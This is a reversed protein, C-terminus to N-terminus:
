QKFQKATISRFSMKFGLTKNPLPPVKITVPRNNRLVTMSTQEGSRRDREAIFSQFVAATTKDNATGKKLEALLAATYFWTGYKWVVDGAQLGIKYAPQKVDLIQEIFIVPRLLYKDTNTIQRNDTDYYLLTKGDKALTIRHFGDTGPVKKGDPDFFAESLTKGNKDKTIRKEAYGYPGNILKADTGYYATKNQGIYRIAYGYLTNFILKEDTGYNYIKTGGDPYYEIKAKALGEPGIVLHNHSDYYAEETWQNNKNYLWSQKAIGLSRDLNPRGDSRLKKVSIKRGWEDFETAILHNGNEDEAPKKNFGFCQYKTQQQNKNCIYFIEHIGAHTLAPKGYANYYIKRTMQNTHSDYEITAMHVGEPGECPHGIKDFWRCEILNGFSDYRNNIRSFGQLGNIPNGNNDFFQESICHRFLDFTREVRHVGNVKTTVPMKHADFFSEKVINDASDYEYRKCHYGDSHEAPKLNATFFREEIIRDFADNVWETRAGGEKTTVPKGSTDFTTLVCCFGQRDYEYKRISWGEQPKVIPKGNHDYVSQTDLRNAANYTSRIEQVPTLPDNSHDFVKVNIKNGHGNYKITIKHINLEEIAIDVAQNDLGFFRMETMNGYKDYSLRAVHFGSEALVPNENQDFAAVAIMNGKSDYQCKTIAYGEQTNSPKGKENLSTLQILQGKDDYILDVGYSKNDEDGGQQPRGIRDYFTVRKEFGRKDNLIDVTEALSKEGITIPYGASNVFLGKTSGNINTGSPIHLFTFCKRNFRDWATEYVINGNRDYTFDIRASKNSINDFNWLGKYSVLSIIDDSDVTTQKENADIVEVSHVPNLRGNRTLKYSWSRHAVDSRSLTGVPYIAGRRKTFNRSYSHYPLVYCYLYIFIALVATLISFILVNLLRKTKRMRLEKKHFAEQKAMEAQKNAQSAELFEMSLEFNGGYRKAWEPTPHCMKQCDLVVELYPSTLFPGNNEKNLRASRELDRYIDAAKAEEKVWTNLQKWLKILSEHSIDIIDDDHLKCPVAPVLFGFCPARFVEVIEIIAEPSVGARKAIISVKTPRRGDRHATGRECITQFLLRAITKQSDNLKEYAQDAHRSLAESLGGVNEYDSMNLVHGYDEEAIGFNFPNGPDPKKSPKTTSWMQRLLHQLVPLQNPDNGTENLLRNVLAPELDGGFVRAPGIIASERQARNLRPTLYQSQNLAEPLRRFIACDGLYDSRMTIVVYVALDPQAVTELLLSVFADQEDSNNKERLRFLEEFQDVILLLNTGEPLPSAELLEVLSKPGKQLVAGFKKGSADAALNESKQEQGLLDNKQLADTLAAFPHTGPRMTAIKWRSGAEIVFGAELAPILGALVLSSKGCGSPGIVGLFRTESLKRLLDDTQEERGFFIDAEYSLFPRLGPYPHTASSYRTNM